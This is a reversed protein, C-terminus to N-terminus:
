WLLSELSNKKSSLQKTTLMSCSDTFMHLEVYLSEVINEWILGM